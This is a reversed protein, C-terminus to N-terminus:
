IGTVPATNEDALTPNGHVDTVQFTQMRTVVEQEVFVDDRELGTGLVCCREVALWTRGCSFVRSQISIIM